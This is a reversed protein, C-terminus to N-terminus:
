LLRLVPNPLLGKIDVGESQLIKCLDEGFSDAGVRGVGVVEAGLSVMNLIVNGSGGPRQEEHKVQIVAVPAEPLFERPKVM